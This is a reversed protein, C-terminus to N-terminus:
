VRADVISTPHFFGPAALVQGRHVEKRGLEPLNLAVCDGAMARKSSRGFVQLGRVRAEKDDPLLVTKDELRVAGSLPMGTVVTGLGKVSFVREVPMRFVGRPGRPEISSTAENLAEWFADFGEGTESSIPVIPAGELFTGQTFERVDELALDRIEPEVMDIKTLAVLGKKLGLLEVIQLHERTQPMVGDDAAVVLIILDIAAVGAVMNRIFKEHGPVDVIGLRMDKGMMCSAFGLDISMGRKKEEPLRDTECGTFLKVLKTKGHDIHGATGVLIRKSPEKLTVM